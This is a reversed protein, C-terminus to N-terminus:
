AAAGAHLRPTDLRALTSRVARALPGRRSRLPGLGLEVSEDLRRQDVMTAALPLGLADSVEVPDLATSPGRTVLHVDPVLPLVRGLMRATAAVASLTLPCVVVLHDSRFLLESVAPDPYRPVDAVVLVSGRRAASVVERVVHADLDTRGGTGWGLVALGDRRPLAARLSRSGLRGASQLLSGWRSGELEDLGAIREIGSGLPDADLLTVPHVDSAAATALAAAFTTAGAGGCGGVVAVVRGSGLPGDTVDTLTEVLWADAGPLEVVNEAGIELAARFVGDPPQQLSVVHVHGRRVPPTVTLSTLADPGVLVVPAAQWRARADAAESLVELSTGAAAALRQLESALAADGTVLLPASVAHAVSRPSADTRWTM